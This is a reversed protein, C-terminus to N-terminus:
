DVGHFGNAGTNMEAARMSASGGFRDAFVEYSEVRKVPGLVTMAPRESMMLRAGFRRVAGPMSRM